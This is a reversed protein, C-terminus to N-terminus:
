QQGRTKGLREILKRKSEQSCEETILIPEGFDAAEPL